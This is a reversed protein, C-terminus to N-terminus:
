EFKRVCTVIKLLAFLRWLNKCIDYPSSITGREAAEQEAEKQKQTQKKKKQQGKRLLAEGM